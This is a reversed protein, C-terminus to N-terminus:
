ARQIDATVELKTGVQVYILMGATDCVLRPYFKQFPYHYSQEEFHRQSM